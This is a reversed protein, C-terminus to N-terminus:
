HQPLPAAEAGIAEQAQNPTGNTGTLGQMRWPSQNLGETQGDYWGKIHANRHPIDAAFLPCISIGTMGSRFGARYQELYVTRDDGTEVPITQPLPVTLLGFQTLRQQHIQLLDAEPLQTRCGFLAVMILVIGMTRM